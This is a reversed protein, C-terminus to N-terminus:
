FRKLFSFHTSRIKEKKEWKKENKLYKKLKQKKEGISM